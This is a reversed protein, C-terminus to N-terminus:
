KKGGKRQWDLLLSEFLRAIWDSVKGLLAYIFIALLITKMDLFQQANTEMYGIGSSASITESVILTTWMVGLAYRFGMLITPMAGPLIIKTFLQWRSLGYSKGMEVLKYDVSRIGHFTNIYIPFMVGIAVLSIKASENIGIWIIILPILALHPINRVMQITADFLARSTKSIGNFVGFIFGISGGIVLGITARYLSIGLNKQLTGTQWLSIGKSLVSLPSPLFTRSIWNFDVAVQWLIILGLPIIWPLFHKMQKNLYNKDSQSNKLNTM